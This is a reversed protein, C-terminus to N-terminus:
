REHELRCFAGGLAANRKALGRQDNPGERAMSAM